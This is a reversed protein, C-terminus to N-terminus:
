KLLFVAVHFTLLRFYAEDREWLMINAWDFSTHVESNRKFIRWLVISVSRYHSWCSTNSYLSAIIIIIVIVTVCLLNQFDCVISHSLGTHFFTFVFFLGSSNSSTKFSFFWLHNALTLTNVWVLRKLSILSLTLRGSKKPCITGFGWPESQLIETVVLKWGLSKPVFLLSRPLSRFNM